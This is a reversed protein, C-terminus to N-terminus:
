SLNTSPSLHPWSLRVIVILKHRLSELENIIFPQRNIDLTISMLMTDNIKTKRKKTPCLAHIYNRCLSKNAFKQSLFSNLDSSKWIKEWISPVPRCMISNQVNFNYSISWYFSAAFPFADVPTCKWINMDYVLLVHERKICIGFANRTSDYKERQNCWECPPFAHVKIVFSLENM